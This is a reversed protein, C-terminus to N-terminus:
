RKAQGVTGGPAVAAALQVGGPVASEAKGVHRLLLLLNILKAGSDNRADKRSLFFFGFHISLLFSIFPSSPRTPLVRFNINECPKEWM